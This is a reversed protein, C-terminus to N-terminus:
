PRNSMWFDFAATIRLNAVRKSDKPSFTNRDLKLDFYLKPDGMVIIKQRRAWWAYYVFNLVGLSTGVVGLIMEFSM